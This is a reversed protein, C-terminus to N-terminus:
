DHNVVASWSKPCGRILPPAVIANPNKHAIHSGSIFHKTEPIQIIRIPIKTIIKSPKTQENTGNNIWLATILISAWGSHSFACVQGSARNCLM